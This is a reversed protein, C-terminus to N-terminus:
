DRIEMGWVFGNEDEYQWGYDECIEIAEGETACEMFFQSSMASVLYINYM